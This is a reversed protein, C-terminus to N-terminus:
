MATPMATSAALAAAAPHPATPQSRFSAPM